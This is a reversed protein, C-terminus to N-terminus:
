GINGSVDAREFRADDALRELADSQRAREEQSGRLWRQRTHLAAHNAFESPDPFTNNEPQFIIKPQFQV